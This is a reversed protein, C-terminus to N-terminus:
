RRVFVRPRRLRVRVIGPRPSQPRPGALPVPSAGPVAPVPYSERVAPLRIAVPVAAPLLSTLSSEPEAATDGAIRAAIERANHIHAHLLHPVWQSVAHTRTSIFVCGALGYHTSRNRLLALLTRELMEDDSDAIHHPYANHSDLNYWRGSNTGRLAWTHSGNYVIVARLRPDILTGSGILRLVEALATGGFAMTCLKGSSKGELLISSPLLAGDLMADDHVFAEGQGLRKGVQKLGLVWSDCDFARFGLANNVAHMRCLHGQQREHFCRAPDEGIM